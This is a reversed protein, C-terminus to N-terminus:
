TQRGPAWPIDMTMIIARLICSEVFRIERYEHAMVRNAYITAGLEPPLGDTLWQIDATLEHNKDRKLDTAWGIHAGPEWNFGLQVPIPDEGWQVSNEALIVGPIDEHVERSIMYRM